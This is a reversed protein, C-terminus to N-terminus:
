QMKELIERSLNECIMDMRQTTRITNLSKGTIIYNLRKYMDIAVQQVSPCLPRCLLLQTSGPECGGSTEYAKGCLGHAQIVPGGDSRVRTRALERRGGEAKLSTDRCSGM